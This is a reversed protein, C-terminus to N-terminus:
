SNLLKTLCDLVISKEKAPLSKVSQATELMEELVDSPVQGVVSAEYIRLQRQNYRVLMSFSIATSGTQSPDIDPVRSCDVVLCDAYNPDSNMFLFLASQESDAIQVCFHYKKRDAQPAYIRVIDGPRM